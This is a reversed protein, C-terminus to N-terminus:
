TQCVRVPSVLTSGVGSPLDHDRPLGDSLRAQGTAAVPLKLLLWGDATEVLQEASALLSPWLAPDLTAARDPLRDARGVM